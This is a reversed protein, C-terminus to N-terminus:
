EKNSKIIKESSLAGTPCSYVCQPEGGCIDCIVPINKKSGMKIIGEPCVSICKACGKCKSEDLGIGGTDM